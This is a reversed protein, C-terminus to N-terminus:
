AGAPAREPATALSLVVRRPKSKSKCTTCLWRDESLVLMKGLFEGCDACVLLIIPPLGLADREAEVHPHGGILPM